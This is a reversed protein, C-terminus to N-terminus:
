RFWALSQFCRLLCVETRPFTMVVNERECALHEIFSQIMRLVQFFELRESDSCKNMVVSERECNSL